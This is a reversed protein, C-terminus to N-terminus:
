LIKTLCKKMPLVKRDGRLLLTPTKSWAALKIEEKETYPEKEDVDEGCEFREFELVTIQNEEVVQSVLVEPDMLFEQNILASESDKNEKAMDEGVKGVKSPKM